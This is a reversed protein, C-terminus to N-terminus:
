CSAPLPAASRRPLCRPAVRPPRFIVTNKNDGARFNKGRIVLTDGIGVKLPSVSSVTPASARKKKAANAPAVLTTLTLLFGLAGFLFVRVSRQLASMAM